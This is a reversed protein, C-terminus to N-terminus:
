DEAATAPFTPPGDRWTLTRISPRRPSGSHRLVGLRGRLRASGPRRLGRGGPRGRHVRGPRLAFAGVLNFSGVRSLMDAPLRQQTVTTAIAGGFASGAGALVAGAAVAAVPLHLALALPPLPFGLTTLEAGGPDIDASELRM